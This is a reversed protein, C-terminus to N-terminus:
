AVNWIAQPLALDTQFTLQCSPSVEPQQELHLQMGIIKRKVFTHSAAIVFLFYLAGFPLVGQLVIHILLSFNSLPV